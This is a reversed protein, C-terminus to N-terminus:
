GDLTGFMPESRTTTPGRTSHINEVSILLVGIVTGALTPSVGWESVSRHGFTHPDPSPLPLPGADSRERSLSKVRRPHVPTRDLHIRLNTRPGALGTTRLSRTGTGTGFNSAEVDTCGLNAPPYPRPPTLTRGTGALGTTRLSRTGTGTGFNSAELHDEPSRSIGIRGTEDYQYHM